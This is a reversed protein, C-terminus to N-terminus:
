GVTTVAQMVGGAPTWAHLHVHCGPRVPAQQYFVFYNVVVDEQLIFVDKM